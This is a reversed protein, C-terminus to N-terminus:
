NLRDIRLSHINTLGPNEEKLSTYRIIEWNNKLLVTNMQIIRIIPEIDEGELKKLISRPILITPVLQKMSHHWLFYKTKLFGLAVSKLPYILRNINGKLDCELLEVATAAIWVAAAEEEDKAEILMKATHATGKYPHEFYFKQTPNDTIKRCSSLADKNSLWIYEYPDLTSMRVNEAYLTKFNLPAKLIDSLEYSEYNINEWIEYVQAWKIQETM